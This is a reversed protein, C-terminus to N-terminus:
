CGGASVTKSHSLLSRETFHLHLGNRTADFKGSNQGFCRQFAVKRTLLGPSHKTYLVVMDLKEEFTSIKARISIILCSFSNPYNGSVDTQLWAWISIFVWFWFYQQLQWYV